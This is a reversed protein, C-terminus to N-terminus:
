KAGWFRKCGSCGCSGPGWAWYAFAAGALVAVLAGLWYAVASNPDMM